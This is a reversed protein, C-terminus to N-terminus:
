MGLGCCSAVSLSCPPTELYRMTLAKQQAEPLRAWADSVRLQRDQKEPLAGVSPQNDALLKGLCLSSHELAQELSQALAANRKDSTHLRHM